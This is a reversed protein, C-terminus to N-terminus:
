SEQSALFERHHRSGERMMPVGCNHCIQEKCPMGKAHPVKEGCEPCVCFGCTEEGNNCNEKKGRQGCHNEHSM